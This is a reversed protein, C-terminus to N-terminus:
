GTHPTQFGGLRPPTKRESGHDVRCGNSCGRPGSVDLFRCGCAMSGVICRWLAMSRSFDSPELYRWPLALTYAYEACFVLIYVTVKITGSIDRQYVEYYIPLYFTAFILGDILGALFREWITQYKPDITM